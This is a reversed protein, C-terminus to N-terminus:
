GDLHARDIVVVCCVICSCSPDSEVSLRPKRVKFDKFLFQRHIADRGDVLDWNALAKLGEERAEPVLLRLSIKTTM